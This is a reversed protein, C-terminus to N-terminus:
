DNKKGGYFVNIRSKPYKKGYENLADVYDGKFCLCITVSTAVILVSIGAAKVFYSDMTWLRAADISYVSLTVLAVLCIVNLTAFAMVGFFTKAVNGIAYYHKNM